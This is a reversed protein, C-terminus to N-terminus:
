LYEASAAIELEAAASASHAAPAAAPEVGLGSLAQALFRTRQARRAYVCVVVRLALTLGAGLLTYGAGGGM